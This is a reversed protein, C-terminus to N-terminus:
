EKIETSNNKMFENEQDILTKYKIYGRILRNIDEKQYFCLTILMNIGNLNIRSGYEDTLYFHYNNNQSSTILKSHEELNGQNEFNINSLDPNGSAFLELLIDDNSNDAVNSRLFLTSERQFNCINTSYLYSSGQALIFDNTSGREFGMVEPLHNNGFIFSSNHQASNHMFKMKGTQAETKSNPFTVTYHSLQQGGSQFINSLVHLFSSVNYNGAPITVTKLTGNDNIIFTNEGDPILYYSKPISISLVAVHTYKNAKNLEINYYFDDDVGITRFKSNIHIIQQNRILSM